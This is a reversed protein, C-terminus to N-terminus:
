VQSGEVTSVAISITITSDQKGSVAHILRITPTEPSVSLSYRDNMSELLICGRTAVDWVRLRDSADVAFLYNNINYMDVIANAASPRCLWWCLSRCVSM